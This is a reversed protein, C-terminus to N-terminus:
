QSVTKQNIIIQKMYKPPALLNCAISINIATEEKDGTLVWIVLGAMALESICEPVGDQLRDELATAGVLTLGSEIEEELDEIRNAIRKRLEIQHVDACVINYAEFWKVFADYELEKYCVLLCRLGEDSFEEVHAITEALVKRQGPDDTIRPIMATDAGKSLLLLREDPGKIIVSM